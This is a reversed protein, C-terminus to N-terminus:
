RKSLYCPKVPGQPCSISTLHFIIRIHTIITQLQSKSARHSDKDFASPLTTQSRDEPQCPTGTSWKDEPSERGSPRDRESSPVPIRNITRSLAPFCVLGGKKLGSGGLSSGISGFPEKKSHYQKTDPGSRRRRCNQLGYCSVPDM